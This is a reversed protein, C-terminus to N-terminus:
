SSVSIDQIIGIHKARDLYLVECDFTEDRIFRM